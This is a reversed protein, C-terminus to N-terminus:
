ASRCPPGRSHQTPNAADSHQSAVVLLRALRAAWALQGAEDAVLDQRLEIEVPPIGRAEGHHVISFDLGDTGAYPQNCGVVLDGEDRLLRLIPDAMRADQNFLVGVHWPRPTGLFIPTFSHVSVLISPKDERQRRDLEARIQAHYPAFIERARAEREWAHLNRNGPVTVSESQTVISDVSGLVRNCDVALRSHPQWAVFADLAAALRRAVNGAGLDWAVHSELEPATLGLTGLRRPLRAGAHDCIVVFPSRGGCGAVGFAPPENKGLLMAEV